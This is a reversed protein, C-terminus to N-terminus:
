LGVGTGGTILIENSDIFEVRAYIDLNHTADIDDGGDKKLQVNLM